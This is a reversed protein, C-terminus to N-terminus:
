PIVAPSTGRVYVRLPSLGLAAAFPQTMSRKRLLVDSLHRPKIGHEEAWAKATPAKAVAASLMQRAEAETYHTM